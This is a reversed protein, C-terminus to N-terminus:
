FDREVCICENKVEYKFLMYEFEFDLWYIKIQLEKQTSLANEYINKVVKNSKSYVIIPKYTANIVGSDMKLPCLYHRRKYLEKIKSADQQSKM